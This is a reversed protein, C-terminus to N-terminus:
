NKTVTVKIPATGAGQELVLEPDNPPSVVTAGIATVTYGNPYHIAPM